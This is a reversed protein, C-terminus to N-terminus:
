NLKSLKRMPVKKDQMKNFLKVAVELVDKKRENIAILLEEKLDVVTQNHTEEQIVEEDYPDEINDDEYVDYNYLINEDNAEYVKEMPPPKKGEYLSKLNTWAQMDIRDENDRKDEIIEDVNVTQGKLEELTELM